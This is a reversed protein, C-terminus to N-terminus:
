GARAASNGNLHAETRDRYRRCMTGDRTLILQTSESLRGYATAFIDARGRVAMAIQGARGKPWLRLETIRVQRGAARCAAGRGPQCAARRYAEALGICRLAVSLRGQASRQLSQPLPSSVLHTVAHTVERELRVEPPERHSADPGLIRAAMLVVLFALLSDELRWRPHSLM